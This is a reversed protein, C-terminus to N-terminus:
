HIPVILWAIASDKTEDYELSAISNTATYLQDINMNNKKIKMTKKEVHRL